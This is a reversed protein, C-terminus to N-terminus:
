NMGVSARRDREEFLAPFLRVALLKAGCPISGQATAAGALAEGHRPRRLQVLAALGDALIDRGAAGGLARRTLTGADGHCFGPTASNTLAAPILGSSERHQRCRSAGSEANRWASSISDGAPTEGARARNSLCSTRRSLQGAGSAQLPSSISLAPLFGLCSNPLAQRRQQPAAKVATHAKPSKM